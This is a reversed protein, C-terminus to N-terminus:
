EDNSKSEVSAQTDQQIEPKQKVQKTLYKVIISNHSYTVFLLWFLPPLAVLTSLIVLTNIVGVLIVPIVPDLIFVGSLTFCVLTVLLLISVVSM